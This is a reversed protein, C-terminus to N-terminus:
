SFTQGYISLGVIAHFSLSKTNSHYALGIPVSLDVKLM